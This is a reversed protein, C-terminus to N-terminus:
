CGTRTIVVDPKDPTPNGAWGAYNYDHRCNNSGSADWIFWGTSPQYTFGSVDVLLGISDDSPYGNTMNISVGSVIIPENNSKGSALQKLHAMNAASILAAGLSEFVTIEADDALDNFKPLATVALIGLIVIVVVLEILTFGRQTSKFQFSLVIEM